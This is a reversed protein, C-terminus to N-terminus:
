AQQALILHQAAVRQLEFTGRDARAQLWENVRIAPREALLNIGLLTFPGFGLDGRRKVSLGEAEVMRKIERYSFFTTPGRTLRHKLAERGPFPCYRPDLVRNLRYKNDSSFLVRGGSRTVRAMEALAKQPTHLFPVVGLAVVLDFAGSGFALEHVDGVDVTLRGAHEASKAAAAALEVMATSTDICDVDYGRAAFEVALLGAGCGVELVRAGPPLALAFAWELAVARRHQHIVGELTQAEYLDRWYEALADFHQDVRDQHSSPSATQPMGRRSAGTWDRLARRVTM